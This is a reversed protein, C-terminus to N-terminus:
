FLEVQKKNPLTLSNKISVGYDREFKSKPIDSIIFVWGNENIVKKMIGKLIQASYDKKLAEEVGVNYLFTFKKAVIEQPTDDNSFKKSFYEAFDYGKIDSWQAFGLKKLAHLIYGGDGTVFVVGGRETSHIKELAKNLKVQVASNIEDSDVTAWSTPLGSYYLMMQLPLEKRVKSNM